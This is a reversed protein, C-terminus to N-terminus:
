SILPAPSAPPTKRESVERWNDRARLPGGDFIQKKCLEFYSLATEVEAPDTVDAERLGKMRRFEDIEPVMIKKVKLNGNKDCTGHLGFVMTEFLDEEDHIDSRIIVAFTRKMFRSQYDAAMIAASSRVRWEDRKPVGDEFVIATVATKRKEDTYACRASGYVEDGMTSFSLGLYQMAAAQHHEETVYRPNGLDLLKELRSLPIVVKEKIGLAQRTARAFSQVLSQIGM